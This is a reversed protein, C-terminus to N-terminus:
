EAAALEEPRLGKLLGAAEARDRYGRSVPVTSGDVLDLLVRGGTRRAGAVADAAVWHSRHVQAGPIGEMEAMADSLRMLLSTRARRTVVDVYHDRATLCLVETGPLGDLRAVIRPAAWIAPAPELPAGDTSRAGALRMLDATATRGMAWRVGNVCVAVVLVLWTLWLALEMAGGDAAGLYRVIVFLVPTYVLTMLLSPLVVVSLASTRPLLIASAYRSAYGFPISAFVILGWYGLRGAPPMDGYTGFPGALALVVSAALGAVLTVPAAIRRAVIRALRLGVYGAGIWYRTDIDAV